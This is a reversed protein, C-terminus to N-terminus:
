HSFSALKRSDAEARRRHEDLAGELEVRLGDLAGVELLRDCAHRLLPEPFWSSSLRTRSIASASAAYSRLEALALRAAEELRGHQLYVTLLATPNAGRRAM